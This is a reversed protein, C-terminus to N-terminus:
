NMRPIDVATRAMPSDITLTNTLLTNIHLLTNILLTWQRSIAGDCCM